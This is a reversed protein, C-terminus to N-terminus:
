RRLPRWSGAESWNEAMLAAMLWRAGGGVPGRSRRRWVDGALFASVLPILSAAWSLPLDIGPGALLRAVVAVALVWNIHWLAFVALILAVLSVSPRSMPTM